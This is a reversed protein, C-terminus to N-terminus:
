GGELLTADARLAELAVRRPVGGQRAQALRVIALTDLDVPEEGADTLPSLRGTARNRGSIASARPTSGEGGGVPLERAARSPITAEHGDFIHESMTAPEAATPAVM